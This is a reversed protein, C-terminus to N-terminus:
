LVVLNAIVATYEDDAIDKGEDIAILSPFGKPADYIISIKYAKSSIAQQIFDFFEDITRKFPFEAVNVASNTENNFISTIVNDKVEVTFRVGSDAMFAMFTYDFKYHAISQANWIARNKELEQQYPSYDFGPDSKCCVLMSILALLLFRSKVIKPSLHSLSSVIIKEGKGRQGPM